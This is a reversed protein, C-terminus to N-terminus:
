APAAWPEAAVWLRWKSGDRDVVVLAHRDTHLTHARRVEAVEAEVTLARILLHVLREATM